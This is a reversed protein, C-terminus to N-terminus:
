PNPFSRMMTACASMMDNMIQGNMGMMGRMMGNGMMLFGAVIGIILLVVFIIHLVLLISVLRQNTTITANM